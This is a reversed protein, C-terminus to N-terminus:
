KKNCYAIAKQELEEDTSVRNRFVWSEIEESKFYVCKGNPKYHPLAKASTLKYVYSKSVGLMEAVDEITLIMKGMNYKIKGLHLMLINETGFRKKIRTEM